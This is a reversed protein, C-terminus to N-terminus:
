LIWPSVLNPEVAFSLSNLQELEETSLHYQGDVLDSRGNIMIEVSKRDGFDFNIGAIENRFYKMPFGQMADLLDDMESNMQRLTEPKYDKFVQRARVQMAIACHQKDGIINLNVLARNSKLEVDYPLYLRQDESYTLPYEANETSINGGIVECKEKNPVSFAIEILPYNGKNVLKLRDYFGKYELSVQQAGQDQTSHACFALGSLVFTFVLPVSLLLNSRM